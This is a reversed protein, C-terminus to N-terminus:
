DIREKSDFNVKYLRSAGNEYKYLESLFEETSLTRLFSTNTADRKSTFYLTKHEIDVYPCYDMKSSNIIRGLNKAKTWTNKTKYSIYLDGSGFGDERNYGGFILFSEDPSVYANYEYSNTNISDSLPTAEVYVGNVKKSVYIDDKRKLEPNDRTFYFNGNKAISPYFEGHTTNIPHGMNIPAEWESNINERTVYWIDFNKKDTKLETNPRTSVFFLTLGDSSFCPELDFYRGSFSTIKPKSWVDGNKKISVIASLNGMVSQATFMVESGNPSIAIDRVNPFLQIQDKIFPQPKEQSNLPSTLM